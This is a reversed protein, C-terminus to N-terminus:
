RHSWNNLRKEIKAILWMRDIKRYDNPKLIFGLYKIGEEMDVLQFPFKTTIYSIEDRSCGVVFAISKLSNIDM